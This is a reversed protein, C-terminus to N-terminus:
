IRYIGDVDMLYAPMNNVRIAASAASGSRIELRAAAYVAKFDSSEVVLPCTSNQIRIIAKYM